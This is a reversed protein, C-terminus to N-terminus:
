KLNQVLHFILGAYFNHNEPLKFGPLRITREYAENLNFNHQKCAVYVGSRDLNKALYEQETLGPTPILIANNENFAIDMLTSYGGRCIVVPKQSLITGLDRANLHDAIDLGKRLPKILTDGPIGRILLCHKNGIPLRAILKEEFISRQPEPGSVIAIVDYRRKVEASKVTNDFRSLLGTFKSNQPLRRGHSLKGSLNLEGAFDPIWSENYRNMFFCTLLRLLPTFIAFVSPTMINVQHTIFISYISRDWLGYRNDSIVVDINHQKVLQKIKRHEKYIVHLLRPTDTFLKLGFPIKRGYNVQYGPFTIYEIEPFENQLLMLQHGDAGVIVEAGNVLFERIVPICRTAHGLGWDLPCILVRLKATKMINIKQLYIFQKLM